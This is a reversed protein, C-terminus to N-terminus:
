PASAQIQGLGEHVDPAVPISIASGPSQGTFCDDVLSRRRSFPASFFFIVVRGGLASVVIPCDFHLGKFNSGIKEREVLGRLHLRIPRGYAVAQFLYKM